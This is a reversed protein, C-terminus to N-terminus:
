IVDRKQVYGSGNFSTGRKYTAVEMLHRGEKKVKKEKKKKKEPEQKEKEKSSSFLDDDDDDMFLDSKTSPATSPITQKDPKDVLLVFVFVINSFHPDFLFHTYLIWLTSPHKQLQAYWFHV